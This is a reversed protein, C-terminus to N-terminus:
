VEYRRQVIIKLADIADMSTVSGWGPVGKEAKHSGDLQGICPPCELRELLSPSDREAVDDLPHRVTVRLSRWESRM